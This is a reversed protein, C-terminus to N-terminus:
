FPNPKNRKGQRADDGLGAFKFGVSLMAAHTAATLADYPSTLSGPLNQAIKHLISSPDLVNSTM